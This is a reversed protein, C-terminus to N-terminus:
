WARVSFVAAASGCLGILKDTKDLLLGVHAAGAISTRAPGV